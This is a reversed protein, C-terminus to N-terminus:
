DFYCDEEQAKKKRRCTCERRSSLADQTAELSIAIRKLHDCVEKYSALLESYYQDEGIPRGRREQVKSTQTGIERRGLRAAADGGRSLALRADQHARPPCERARLRSMSSQCSPAAKGGPRQRLIRRKTKHAAAKRKQRDSDSAADSGAAVAEKIIQDVTEELTMGPDEPQDPQDPLDFDSGFSDDSSSTEEKVREQSAKQKQPVRQHSTHTGKGKYELYARQGESTSGSSTTSDDDSESESEFSATPSRPSPNRSGSLFRRIPTKVKTKDEGGRRSSAFTHISSFVILLISLAVINRSM